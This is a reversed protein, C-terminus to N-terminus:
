ACSTTKGKSFHLALLVEEGLDLESRSRRIYSIVFCEKGLSFNGRMRRQHQCEICGGRRWRVSSFGVVVSQQIHVGKATHYSGVLQSGCSSTARLLLTYGTM